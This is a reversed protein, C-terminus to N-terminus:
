RDFDARAMYNSTEAAGLERARELKADSSSTVFTRAGLSVAIQLASIAVGGAGLVLVTHDRAVEKKCRKSAV